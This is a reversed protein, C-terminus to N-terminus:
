RLGYKAGQLTDGKAGQLTIKTWGWIEMSQGTCLTVGFHTAGSVRVTWWNMLSQLLTFCIIVGLNRHKAGQLNDWGTSQGKCTIKAWLKGWAFYWGRFGRRSRWGGSCLELSREDQFANMLAKMKSTYKWILMVSLWRICKIASKRPTGLNSTKITKKKLHKQYINM